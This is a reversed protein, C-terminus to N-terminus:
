LQTHKEDLIGRKTKLHQHWTLTAFLYKRFVYKRFLRGNSIKYLWMRM